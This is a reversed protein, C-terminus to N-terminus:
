KILAKQSIFDLKEEKTFFLIEYDRIIESFREKLDSIIENLEKLDKIEFDIDADSVGIGEVLYISNQHSTCYDYFGQRQEKSVNQLKFMVKVFQYNFVSYNLKITFKQIVESEILEKLKKRVTVTSLGCKNSLEDISVRSNTSLLSVLKLDNKSINERSLKPESVEPATKKGILYGRSAKIQMTDTTVDMLYIKTGFKAQIEHLIDNFENSDNTLVNFVSDYKGICRVSYVVKPHSNLFSFYDDEEKKSVGRLRVYVKYFSFGIKPLDSFTYFSDILGIKILRNVRYKVNEKSLRIKRAIKSYPQRSNSDLEFLIRRDKGDLDDLSLIPQM